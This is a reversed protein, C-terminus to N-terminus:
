DTKEVTFEGTKVYKRGCRCAAFGEEFSLQEGCECVWGALKAPVGVVLAYDPVNKTVVAGLLRHYM